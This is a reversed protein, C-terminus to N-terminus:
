VIGLTLAVNGDCAEVSKNSQLILKIREFCLIRRLQLPSARVQVRSDRNGM